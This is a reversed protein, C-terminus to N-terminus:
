ISLVCSLDEGLPLFRQDGGVLDLYCVRKLNESESYDLLYLVVGTGAFVYYRSIDGNLEEIQEVTPFWSYVDNKHDVWKALPVITSMWQEPDGSIGFVEEVGELLDPDESAFKLFPENVYGGNTDLLIKRLVPPLQIGREQEFAQIEPESAPEFGEFPECVNTEGNVQQKRSSRPCAALILGGLSPCEVVGDRVQRQQFDPRSVM